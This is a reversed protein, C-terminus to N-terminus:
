GVIGALDNQAIKINKEFFSYIEEACKQITAPTPDRKTEATIRTMMIKLALSEWPKAIKGTAVDQWVQATKAPM